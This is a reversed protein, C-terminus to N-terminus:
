SGGLGGTSSSSEFQCGTECLQRASANPSCASCCLSCAIDSDTGAQCEEGYVRGDGDTDWAALNCANGQQGCSPDGKPCYMACIFPGGDLDPPCYTQIVGEPADSVELPPGKLADRPPSESPADVAGSICASVLSSTAVLGALSM